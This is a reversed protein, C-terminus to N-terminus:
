KVKVPKSDYLRDGGCDVTVVIFQKGKRGKFADKPLSIMVHDLQTQEALYTREFVKVREPNKEGVLSASLVAAERQNRVRVGMQVSKSGDKATEVKVETLSALAAPRSGPSGEVSGWRDEFIRVAQEYNHEAREERTTWRPHSSFFAGFKSQEGTVARLQRAALIAYDPHYGAEAAVRLGLLDAEHEEDRDLKKETIAYATQYGINAWCSANEGSRCRYTYYNTLRAHEVARLYNKVGHFMHNHAMEHGMVFALMGENGRIAQMLGHTVYVRGGGAAFANVESDDLFFLQHRVGPGAQLSGTQMMQDFVRKLKDYIEGQPIFVSAQAIQQHRNFGLMADTTMLDQAWVLTSFLCFLLTVLKV